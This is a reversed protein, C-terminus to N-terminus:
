KSASNVRRGALRLMPQALDALPPYRLGTSLLVNDRSPSVLATPTVPANLIDLVEKPPKKYGRQALSNGAVLLLMLMALSTSALRFGKHVRMFLSRRLFHISPKKSPKATIRHM